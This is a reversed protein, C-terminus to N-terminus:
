EFFALDTANDQFIVSNILDYRVAEQASDLALHLKSPSWIFNPSVVVQRILRCTCSVARGETRTMCKLVHWWLESPLEAWVVPRMLAFGQEPSCLDGVIKLVGLLPSPGLEREGHLGAKQIDGNSDLNIYVRKVIARNSRKQLCFCFNGSCFQTVVRAPGVQGARGSKGDDVDGFVIRLLSTILGSANRAAETFARPTVNRSVDADSSSPLCRVDCWELDFGRGTSDSRVTITLNDVPSFSVHDM